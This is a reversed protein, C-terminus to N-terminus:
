SGLLHLGPVTCGDAFCPVHATHSAPLNMFALPWVAQKSHTAPEYQVAPADATVAHRLDRCTDAALHRYLCLLPLAQLPMEYDLLTM